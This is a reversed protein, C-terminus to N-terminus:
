SASELLVELGDERLMATGDEMLVVGELATKFNYVSPLWALSGAVIQLPYQTRAETFTEDQVEEPKLDLGLAANIDALIGHITFPYTTIKVKDLFGEPLNELISIPLRRYYVYVERYKETDTPIIKIRSNRNQASNYAEVPGFTFDVGEVFNTGNDQNMLVTLRDNSAGAYPKTDPM